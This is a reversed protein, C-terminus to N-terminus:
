QVWHINDILVDGAPFGGSADVPNWFAFPIKIDTFDLGAFDSLPITYEVYGNSLTNTPTYNTLFVAADSSVSELKIEADVITSPLNIAFVLSGNAYASMDVPSQDLDFWGGGWSNGPYRFLVASDGDIATGSPLIDPEGGGGFIMTGIGPFQNMSENFAYEGVNPPINIFVTEEDIDLVPETPATFGDKTYYRVYDVYMKQPFSTSADPSGPWNGGVAVNLILYFSRHFEKMGDDDISTTKFLEGDLFWQIETPTWEISFNHYNQDFTENIMKSDGEANKYEQQGNVYHINGHVVDPESGVLEMIDIEGCGAWGVTPFNDGLMWFAPWMGQATPLKIRADIKGYRFSQLGQTTLKASRYNGAGEETAEIVLASTGDADQEIYSNDSADTYLQLEDNGWGAPLGYDTGDGLEHVWNSTNISNGDFEDSWVLTYGEFGPTEGTPPQEEDPNCAIVFLLLLYFFILKKM